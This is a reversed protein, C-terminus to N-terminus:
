LPSNAFTEDSFTQTKPMKEPNRQIGKSKIEFKSVQSKLHVTQGPLETTPCNSLHPPLIQIFRHKGRRREKPPGYYWASAECQAFGETIMIVSHSSSINSVPSIMIAHQLLLLFPLQHIWGIIMLRIHRHHNHYHCCLSIPQYSLIEGNYHHRIGLWSTQSHLLSLGGMSVMMVIKFKDQHEGYHTVPQPTFLCWQIIESRRGTAKLLHYQLNDMVAEGGWGGTM